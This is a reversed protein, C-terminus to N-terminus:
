FAAGAMAEAFHKVEPPRAFHAGVLARWEGFLPGGRFDVTHNELTKWGIIVHYLGPEEVCRKLQMGTCGKARRFVAVAEAVAAEFAAESGPKVAIAAIETIM